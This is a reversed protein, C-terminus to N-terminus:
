SRFSLILEVSDPSQPYARSDAYGAIIGRSIGANNNVGVAHLSMEIPEIRSGGADLLTNPIVIVSQEWEGPLAINASADYPLLNGAFGSTVHDVDMHIKFDRFRAVASEAGADAIADMQQKNWVRFAKEWANSMTWTNWLKSVLVAGKISTGPAPSATTVKFGAVAWNLGQRMFRRNLISTLQSLDVYNHTTAGPATSPTALQITMVSPEINMSKRKAKTRAM